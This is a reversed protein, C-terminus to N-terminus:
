IFEPNSLAYNSMAYPIQQHRLPSEFGWQATLLSRAQKVNMWSLILLIVVVEALEDVCQHHGQADDLLRVAGDPVDVRDRHALGVKRGIPVPVESQAKGDALVLGLGFDSGKLRCWDERLHSVVKSV